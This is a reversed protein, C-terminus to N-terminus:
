TREVAGCQLRDEMKGLAPYSATGHEVGLKGLMCEGGCSASLSCTAFGMVVNPRRERGNFVSRRDQKKVPKRPRRRGACRAPRGFSEAATTTRQAFSPLMRSYRIAAGDNPERSAAPQACFGRSRQVFRMNCAIAFPCRAAAHVWSCAHGIGHAARPARRGALWASLGHRGAADVM